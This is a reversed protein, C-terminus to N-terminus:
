RTWTGTSTADTCWSCSAQGGGVLAIAAPPWADHLLHVSAVLVPVHVLYLSFSIGGLWALPGCRLAARFRGPQRALVILLVAGAYIALDSAM